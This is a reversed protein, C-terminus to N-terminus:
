LLTPLVIGIPTMEQKPESVSTPSTPSSSQEAPQEPASHFAEIPAPTPLYKPIKTPIATASAEATSAANQRITVTPSQTQLVVVKEREENLISMIKENVTVAMDEPVRNKVELLLNLNEATNEIKDLHYRLTNQRGVDSEYIKVRSVINQASRGNDQQTGDPFGPRIIRSSETIAEDQLTEVADEAIGNKQIDSLAALQGQKQELIDATTEPTMNMTPVVDEANSSERIIQEALQINGAKVLKHAEWLRETRRQETTVEPPTSSLEAKLIEITKKATFLPSDPLISSLTKEASALFAGVEAHHDAAVRRVNAAFGDLMRDGADSALMRSLTEFFDAEIAAIDADTGVAFPSVFKEKLLAIKNEALANQRLIKERLLTKTNAEDHALNTTAWFEQQEADSVDFISFNRLGQRKFAKGESIFHRVGGHMVYVSREWVRVLPNIGAVTVDVASGADIMVIMDPSLTLLFRSYTKDVSFTRAWARGQRVTLAVEGLDPRVAHPALRDIVVTTNADLRLISDEYFRITAGSSIGTTIVTGETIPIEPTVITEDSDNRVIQVDGQFDTLVTGETALTAPHSASLVAVSILVLVTVLSGTIEFSRVWFRRSAYFPQPRVTRRHGTSGPMRSFEATLQKQLRKKFVESPLVERAHFHLCVELRDFHVTYEDLVRKKLAAIFDRNPVGLVLRIKQFM